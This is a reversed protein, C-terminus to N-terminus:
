AHVRTLAIRKKSAIKKYATNIKQVDQLEFVETM